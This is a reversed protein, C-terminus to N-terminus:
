CVISLKFFYWFIIKFCKCAEKTTIVFDSENWIYINISPIKRKQLWDLFDFLNSIYNWPLIIALDVLFYNNDFIILIDDRLFFIMCFFLFISILIRESPCYCFIILYFQKVSILRRNQLTTSHYKLDISCLSFFCNGFNYFVIFYLKYGFLFIPIWWDM